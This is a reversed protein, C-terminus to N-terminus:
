QQGPREAQDIWLVELPVKRGELKLGLQQEIASWLSPGRPMDPLVNPDEDDATLSGPQVVPPTWELTFTFVGPVSTQDIVPKSMADSLAQALSALSANEGTVSGRGTGIRSPGPPVPHIKMGTKAVVLAYGPFMKSERHFKLRFRSVLLARLMAKMEVDAAVSPAQAEIDFRETGIWKPAGAAPRAIKLDWAIRVCDELTQNQLTVKERNTFYRAPGDVEQSAHIIASLFKPSPTQALMTAGALMAMSVMRRNM